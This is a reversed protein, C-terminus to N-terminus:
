RKLAKSDLLLHCIDALVVGFFTFHILNKNKLYIQYFDLNELLQYNIVAIIVLFFLMMWIIRTISGILITHSVGRHKFFWSYSRFPFSFLGRVSFLKVKNAVDADPSMFLTSFAFSLAFILASKQDIHLYHLLILLSIPLAIFLNFLSHTRYQAM